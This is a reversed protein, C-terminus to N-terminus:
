KDKVRQFAEVRVAGRYESPRGEATFLGNVDITGARPDDVSWRFFVDPLLVRNKDYAVARFQVKEGRSLTATGPTIEVSHLTDRIVLTASIERVIPGTETQVTVQAKIAGEYIGPFDHATVNIFQSVEGVEPPSVSWRVDASPLAQVGSYLGVVSVRTSKGPSLVVREPSITVRSLQNVKPETVVPKVEVVIVTARAVLDQDTGPASMSVQVADWYIGTTEGALFHGDQSIFGADPELLGWKSKAPRIQNGQRDLILTTFRIEEGAKLSIVKPLITASIQRAAGTPDLVRVDLSTSIIEVEGKADSELTVRIANSYTGISNGATWHGDQSISGAVPEQMEWNFRRNPISVGNNDVALAVLRLTEHPEMELKQPFVRVGIPRLEGPLQAITVSAAAQLVGGGLSGPARATVVVADEFTGNTFGARFVGRPTISGSRPDVVQWNLSLGKLERGQQDFSISSFAMTEGPSIVVHSPVPQVQSLRPSGKEAIVIDATTSANLLRVGEDLPEEQSDKSRCGSWAGVILLCLIILTLHRVSM